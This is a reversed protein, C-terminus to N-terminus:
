LPFGWCSGLLFKFASSITYYCSLCSSLPPKSSPLSSRARADLGAFSCPEAGSPPSSVQRLYPHPAAAKRLLLALPFSNPSPDESCYCHATLTGALDEVAVHCIVAVEQGQTAPALKLPYLCTIWDPGEGSDCLSHIPKATELTCFGTPLWM